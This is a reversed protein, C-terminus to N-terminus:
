FLRRDVNHAMDRSFRDKGYQLLRVSQILSSLLRILNLSEVNYMIQTASRILEVM